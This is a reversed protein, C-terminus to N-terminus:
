EWFFHQERNVKVCRNVILYEIYEKEREGERERQWVCVSVSVCVCMRTETTSLQWLLLSQCISWIHTSLWDTM